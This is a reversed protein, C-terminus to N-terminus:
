GNDGDILWWHVMREDGASEEFGVHGLEPGTRYALAPAPSSQGQASSIGGFPHASLDDLISKYCISRMVVVNAQFVPYSWGDCTM